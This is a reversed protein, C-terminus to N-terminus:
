KNGEKLQIQNGSATKKEAEDGLQKVNLFTTGNQFLYIALGLLDCHMLRVLLGM